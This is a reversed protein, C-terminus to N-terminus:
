KIEEMKEVNPYIGMMKEIECATNQLVAIPDYDESISYLDNYCWAGIKVKAHLYQSEVPKERLKDLLYQTPIGKPEDGSFDWCKIFENSNTKQSILFGIVACDLVDRITLGSVLTMGRKGQSTHPQGDYPRSRDCSREEGSIAKIATIIQEEANGPSVNIIPISVLQLSDFSKEPEIKNRLGEELSKCFGSLNCAKIELWICIKSLRRIVSYLFHNTTFSNM